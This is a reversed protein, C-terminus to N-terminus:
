PRNESMPVTSRCSVWIEVRSGRSATLRIALWISRRAVWRCAVKLAANTIEVRSETQLALAPM